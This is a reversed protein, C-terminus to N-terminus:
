GTDEVRGVTVVKVKQDKVETFSLVWQSGLSTIEKGKIRPRQCSM